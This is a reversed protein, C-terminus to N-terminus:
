EFAIVICMPSEIDFTISVGQTTYSVKANFKKLTLNDLMMAEYKEYNDALYKYGRKGPSMTNITQVLQPKDTFEKALLGNEALDNRLTMYPDTSNILWTAKINYKSKSLYMKPVFVTIKNKGLENRNMNYCVTLIYNKGNESFFGVSKYKLTKSQQSELKYNLEVNKSGITHDLISFIWSQSLLMPTENEWVPDKLNWHFLKNLGAKRLTFMNYFNGAAGRAGPVNDNNGFENVLFWGYEHIERSLNNGKASADSVAKWTPIQQNQVALDPDLTNYNLQGDKLKSISYFSTAVWDFPVNEKKALAALKALGEYESGARNYPGFRAYPLVCQVAKATAIYFQNYEDATGDWRVKGNMETGLRFGWQNVMDFGYLRVMEKCLDTIFTTWENIDAAQKNQGYGKPQKNASAKESDPESATAPFCWPINDLVITPSTYGLKLVPDLRAPLLDWRYKIKGDSGRYALDNKAAEEVSGNMKTASWGGLFRVLNINECFLIEGSYPRKRYPFSNKKDTMFAPVPMKINEPTQYIWETLVPQYRYFATMTGMDAKIAFDDAILAFRFSFTLLVIIKLKNM